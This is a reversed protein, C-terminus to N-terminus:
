CKKIRVTGLGPKKTSRGGGKGRKIHVPNVMGGGEMLASGRCHSKGCRKKTCKAALVVGRLAERVFLKGGSRSPKRKRAELGRHPQTEPTM